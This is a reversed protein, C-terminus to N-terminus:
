DKAKILTVIPFEGTMAGKAKYAEPQAGSLYWEGAEPARVMVMPERNSFLDWALIVQARVQSKDAARIRECEERSPEDYLPWLRAGWYAGGEKFAM